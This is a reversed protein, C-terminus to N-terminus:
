KKNELNQEAIAINESVGGMDVDDTHFLFSKMNEVM